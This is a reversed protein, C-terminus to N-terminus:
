ESLKKDVKLSHRSLLNSEDFNNDTNISFSLNLVKNNASTGLKVDNSYYVVSDITANEANEVSLNVSENPKYVQKLDKSAISFLDKTDGCNYLFVSLSTIILLNFKKM